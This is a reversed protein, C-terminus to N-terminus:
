STGHRRSILTFTIGMDRASAMPDGNGHPGEPNVYILARHSAALPNELDYDEDGNEGRWRGDRIVMASPNDTERPDWIELRWDTANDAKRADRRGGGFRYTPFGLIELAYNGKLFILDGWSLGNGYKRKIQQLLRGSKETNGNV